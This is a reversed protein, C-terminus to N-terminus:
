FVSQEIHKIEPHLLAVHICHKFTAFNIINVNFYTLIVVGSEYLLVFQKFQFYM